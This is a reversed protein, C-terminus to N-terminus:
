FLFSIICKYSYVLVSFCILGRNLKKNKHSAIMCKRLYLAITQNKVKVYFIEIKNSLTNNIFDM